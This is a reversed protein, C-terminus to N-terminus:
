VPRNPGAVTSSVRLIANEAMKTGAAMSAETIARQNSLYKLLVPNSEYLRILEALEEQTFFTEVIKGTDELCENLDLSDFTVNLLDKLDQDEVIQDLAQRQMELAEVTHQHVHFFDLYKKTTAQM